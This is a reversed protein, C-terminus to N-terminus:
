RHCTSGYFEKDPRRLGAYQHPVLTREVWEYVEQRRQGTFRLRSNAAVLARIQELITTQSDDMKIIL